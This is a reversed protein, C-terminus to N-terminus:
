FSPTYNIIKKKLAYHVSGVKRKFFDEKLMSINKYLKVDCKLKHKIFKKQSPILDKAWM